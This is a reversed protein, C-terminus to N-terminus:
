YDHNFERRESDATAALAAKILEARDERPVLFLPSDRLECGFRASVHRADLHAFSDLEEVSQPRPGGGTAFGIGDLKGERDTFIWSFTLLVGEPTRSFHEMSSIINEILTTKGSGNPGHLLLMKDSKGRRAFSRLHALIAAQVREHGVLGASAGKGEELDFLRHRTAAQGIRASERTGYHEFVEVVYQAATRLYRRPEQGFRELFEAFTLGRESSDFRERVRQQTTELFSAPDM